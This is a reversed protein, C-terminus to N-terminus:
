LSRIHVTRSTHRRSCRSWIRRRRSAWTSRASRRRMSRSTPTNSLAIYAQLWDFAWSPFGVLQESLPVKKLKMKHVGATASGLLSGAALFIATKMAILSSSVAIFLYPTSHLYLVQRHTQLYLHPTTITCRRTTPLCRLRLAPAASPAPLEWAAVHRSGLHVTARARHIFGASATNPAQYRSCGVQTPAYESVGLSSFDM